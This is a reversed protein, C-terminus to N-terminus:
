FHHNYGVMASLQSHRITMGMGNVNSVEPAYSLAMAVCGRDSVRYDFGATYHWEVTAPFLPNLTSDPVPNRGYNLGARLGLRDSPRYQLGLAYVTQDSWNQAMTLPIEVGGAPTFALKFDKMDQSWGIRKIDAALMLRPTAQWAIGVAYTEPWEFDHITVKGPGAFLVGGSVTAGRSSTELDDLATKSHYTLGVNLSPSAQWLLGLKGAFGQGKAKGTFDSTDSFDVRMVGGGGDPMAARMDLGAWVYDLTAGLVLGPAAQYAVPLILRGVGLESRVPQGTGMAMASGPGYETGMGGQAFLGVGWTLAGQRRGWGLAPMYYADGGSADAGTVVDPGLYHLALAMQDGEPALGLTAPNNMMAALGSDYAMAAGGMSMGLPGFGELNMGNTALVPRSLCAIALALPALASPRRSM